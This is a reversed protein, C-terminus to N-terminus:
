DSDNYCDDTDIDDDTDTEDGTDTYFEAKDLPTIDEGQQIALNSLEFSGGQKACMMRLSKMEEDEEEPSGKQMVVDVIRACDSDLRSRMVTAIDIGVRVLTFRLSLDGDADRSPVFISKSSEGAFKFALYGKKQMKRPALKIFCGDKEWLQISLEETRKAPHRLTLKAAKRGQMQLPGEDRGVTSLYNSIKIPSDPLTKVVEGYSLINFEGPRSHKEIYFITAEDRNYTGTLDKHGESNDVKWYVAEGNRECCILFPGGTCTNM